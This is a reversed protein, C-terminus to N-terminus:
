TAVRSGFRGRVALSVRRLAAMAVLAMLGISAAVLSSPEPVTALLVPEVAAAVIAEGATTPHRYDDYYTSSDVALNGVANALASYADVMPVNLEPALTRVSAAYQAVLDNPTQTAYPGYDIASPPLLFPDPTMLIPKIGLARLDNVITTLNTVYDSLTVHPGTAGQEWFSDGGGYQVIVIQPHLATIDGLRALGGASTDGSLGENFIAMHTLQAALLQPYAPMTKTNNETTSDDMAVVAVGQAMPAALFSLLLLALLPRLITSFTPM